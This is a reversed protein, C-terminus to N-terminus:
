GTTWNEPDVITSSPESPIEGPITLTPGVDGDGSSALFARLLSLGMTLLDRFITEEVQHIPQQQDAADQLREVLLWFISLAQDIGGSCARQEPTADPRFKVAAAAATLM